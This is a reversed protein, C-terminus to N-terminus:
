YDYVESTHTNIEPSWSITLSTKTKARFFGCSHTKCAFRCAGWSSDGFEYTHTTLPKVAVYISNHNADNDILLIHINEPVTFSFSTEHKVTVVKSGTPINVTAPSASFTVGGGRNNGEDNNVYYSEEM